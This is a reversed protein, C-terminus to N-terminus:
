SQRWFPKKLSLHCICAQKTQLYENVAQQLRNCEDETWYGVKRDDSRTVLERYRDRVSLAMRGLEDAIATWKKGYAEVYALIQEDEEKSWKGQLVYVLNESM